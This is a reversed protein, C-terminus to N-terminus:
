SIRVYPRRPLILAYNLIQIAYNLIQVTGAGHCGGVTVVVIGACHCGGALVLIGHCGHLYQKLACWASTVPIIISEM